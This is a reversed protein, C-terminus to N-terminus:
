NDLLKKIEQYDLKLAKCLKPLWDNHISSPLVGHKELSSLAFSYLGTKSCLDIQSLDLGRRQARVLKGFNKNIKKEKM